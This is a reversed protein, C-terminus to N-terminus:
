DPLDQVDTLCGVSRTDSLQWLEMDITKVQGDNLKGEIFLM